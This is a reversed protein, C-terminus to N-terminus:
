LSISNIPKDVEKELSKSPFEEERQMQAQFHKTKLNSVEYPSSQFQKQAKPSPINKESVPNNEKGEKEREPFPQNM